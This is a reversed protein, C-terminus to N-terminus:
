REECEPYHRDPLCIPDVKNISVFGSNSCISRVSRSVHPKDSLIYKADFQEEAISKAEEESEAEIFLWVTMEYTVRYKDM